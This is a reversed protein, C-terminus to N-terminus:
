EQKAPERAAEKKTPLKQEAAGKGLQKIISAERSRHFAAMRKRMAPTSLAEVRTDEGYREAKHAYLAREGSDAEPDYSRLVNELYAMREEALGLKLLALITTM